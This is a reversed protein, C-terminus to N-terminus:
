FMLWSCVRFPFIFVLSIVRSSDQMTFRLRCLIECRILTIDLKKKSQANKRSTDKMDGELMVIFKERSELDDYLSEILKKQDAVKKEFTTM